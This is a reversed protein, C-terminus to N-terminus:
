PALAMSLTGVGLPARILLPTRAPDRAFFIEISANSTPGKLYIVIQDALSQRGAIMITQAGSYEMRVSYAGGFYVDQAAALRGQGMERRAYYIFALADRACDPVPFETTGGGNATTRRATGSKPVFTTTENARRTGQITNREFKQSCGYANVLSRFRDTISFGPLKADLTM